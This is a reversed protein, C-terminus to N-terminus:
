YVQHHIVRPLHGKLMKQERPVRGSGSDILRPVETVSSTRGGRLVNHPIREAFLRVLEVRGDLLAGEVKLHLAVKHVPGM